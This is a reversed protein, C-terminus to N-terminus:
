STPTITVTPTTQISTTGTNVNTATWTLTQSAGAALTIPFTTPSTLVFTLANGSDGDTATIGTLPITSTGQGNNKITISLTATTTVTSSPFTLATTGIGTLPTNGNFTAATIIDTSAAPPVTTTGLNATLNTIAGAFNAIAIATLLICATLALASKIKQNM